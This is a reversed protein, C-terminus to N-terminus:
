VRGPRTRFHRNAPNNLWAKFRKQSKTIGKKELEMLVSLPINAVRTGLGAFDKGARTFRAREDVGAYERKNAEVIAEVDQVDEVIFSNDSENFHFLSKTRTVPDYELLRGM